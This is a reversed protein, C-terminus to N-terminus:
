GCVILLEQGGLNHVSMLIFRDWLKPLWWKLDQQILHANRGDPLTKVAPRTAITLFAVKKTVRRLDDLVDEICEPEIHELVDTCVVLDAPEAPLSLEEFAPDYNKIEFGLADELTRKGCGYDLIDKTGMAVALDKIEKVHKHGGVGYDPRIEHLQKNQQRYEESILL